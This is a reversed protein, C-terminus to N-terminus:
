KNISTKMALTIAEGVLALNALLYHSHGKIAITTGAIEATTLLKSRFKHDGCMTAAGIIFATGSPSLNFIIPGADIDFGFLCKEQYYEKVGPIPFNQKFLIKLRQFQKKAFDIDILALYYCNLASYSGRILPSITGDKKMYSALLGTKKDIWETKAKNM